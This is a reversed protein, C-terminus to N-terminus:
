ADKMKVQLMAAAQEVQPVLKDARAKAQNGLEDIQAETIRGMKERAEVRDIFSMIGTFGSTISKALAADKVQVQPLIARYIVEVSGMIGRMDSVRSVANFHGSKEAAYRSEKWDEFYGAFTPTVTVIAGMLDELTPQWAESAAILGGVKKHLDDAIAVLVDAQPLAERAAIKGDGDLDAPVLHKQSTGWLLPEVLHTFLSGEQDISTGKSTKLTVPAVTVDAGAEAKPVGADLYIDFDALVPVGAVIGEVLEYGFSDMAKYNERMAALLRRLEPRHAALAGAPDSQALAEYQRANAQYDTAAAQVKALTSLLYTKVDGVNAPEASGVSIGALLILFSFKM